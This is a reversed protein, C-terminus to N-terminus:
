GESFFTGVQASDKCGDGLLRSKVGIEGSNLCFSLLTPIETLKFVPHTRFPNTPTKWHDRDGVECMIFLDKESMKKTAEEVIPEATRCDPCWSDGTIPDTTGIFFAYVRLQCNLADKTYQEVQEVSDAFREKRERM